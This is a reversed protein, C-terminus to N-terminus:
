RETALQSCPVHCVPFLLVRMGTQAPSKKLFFDGCFRMFYLVALTVQDFFSIEHRLFYTHVVALNIHPTTECHHVVLNIQSASLVRLPV